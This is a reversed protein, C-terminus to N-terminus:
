QPGNSGVSLCWRLERTRISHCHVLFSTHHDRVCAIVSEREEIKRAMEDACNTDGCILHVELPGPGDRDIILPTDEDRFIASM